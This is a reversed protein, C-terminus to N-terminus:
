APPTPTMDNLSRYPPKISNVFFSTSHCAQQKDFSSMCLLPEQFKGLSEELSNMFSIGGAGKVGPPLSVITLGKTADWNRHLKLSINGNSSVRVAREV